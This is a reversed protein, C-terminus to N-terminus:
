LTFPAQWNPDNVVDYANVLYKDSMAEVTDEAQDAVDDTNDQWDMCDDWDDMFDDEEPTISQGKLKKNSIRHNKKKLKDNTRTHTNSNSTNFQSEAILNQNDAESWIEAYKAEKAELLLEEPTKINTLSM